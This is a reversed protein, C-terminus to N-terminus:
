RWMFNIIFYVHRYNFYKWIFVRHRYFMCCELDKIAPYLEAPITILWCAPRGVSRPEFVPIPMGYIKEL